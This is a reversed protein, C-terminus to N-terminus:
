KFLSTLSFGQYGELGTKMSSPKTQTNQNTNQGTVKLYEAYADEPSLRNQTQPQTNQKGIELQKLTNYTSEGIATEYMGDITSDFASLRGRLIAENLGQTKNIGPFISAIDKGEQVSYATGSVANRYQQLSSAIGVAIEVLKPDKITGLNNLAKEFNGSFINTKGGNAYYNALQAQLDVINNKAVEFNTLKNSETAGLIDKAKNKIVTFPDEGSNVAKIFDAKQDKTLKSSGIITNIAPTYQTATPNTVVSSIGQSKIENNLKVQELRTNELNALAQQKAIPDSMYQGLISLVQTPNTAQQARSLLLAPAGNKAAEAIFGLSVTKDQKQEELVRQREDLLIRQADARKKDERSLEQYNDDLAQRLYAIENEVPKFQMDVATQVKQEALAINNTIADQIASLELAKTARSREISAQEGRIAFMPVQKDEAQSSAKVAEAQLQKIQNNIDVLQQNFQPLGAQQRQQEAFVDRNFLRSTLDSIRGKLGARETELASPQTPPLYQSIDTNLTSIDYIPTTSMSPLLVPNTQQTVDSTITNPLTPNGGQGPKFFDKNPNTYNNEMHKNNVALQM